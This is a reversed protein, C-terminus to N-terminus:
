RNWVKVDGDPTVASEVHFMIAELNKNMSQLNKNMSELERFIAVFVEYFYREKADLVPIEYSM